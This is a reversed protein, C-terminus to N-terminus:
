RRNGMGSLPGLKADAEKQTINNWPKERESSGKPRVVVRGNDPVPPVPPNCATLLFSCLLPLYIKKMRSRLHKPPYQTSYKQLFASMALSWTPM